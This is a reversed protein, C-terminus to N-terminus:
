HIPNMKICLYIIKFYLDLEILPSIWWNDHFNHGKKLNLFIKWEIDKSFILINSEHKICLYINM